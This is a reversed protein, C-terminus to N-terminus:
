NQMSTQVGLDSLYSSACVKEINTVNAAPDRQKINAVQKFKTFFLRRTDDSSDSRSAHQTQQRYRSLLVRNAKVDNVCYGQQTLLRKSDSREGCLSPTPKASGNIVRDNIQAVTFACNFTDPPFPLSPCTSSSTPPTGPTSQRTPWQTYSFILWLM